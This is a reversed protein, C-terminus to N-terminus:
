LFIRFICRIKSFFKCFLFWLQSRHWFMHYTVDILIFENSKRENIPVKIWFSSSFSNRKLKNKVFKQHIMYKHLIYKDKHQIKSNYLLDLQFPFFETSKQHSHLYKMSKLTIKWYKLTIKENDLSIRIIEFSMEIQHHYYSIIQKLTWIGQLIVLYQEPKTRNKEMECRLNWIICCFLFYYDTTRCFMSWDVQTSSQEVSPM